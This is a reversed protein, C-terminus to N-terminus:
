PFGIQDPLAGARRLSDTYKEDLYRGYGICIYFQKEITTDGNCVITDNWEGYDRQDLNDILSNEDEETKACIPKDRNIFSVMVIITITIGILWGTFYRISIKELWDKDNKPKGFYIDKLKRIISM